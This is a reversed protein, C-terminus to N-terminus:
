KTKWHNVDVKKGDPKQRNQKRKYNDFSVIFLM